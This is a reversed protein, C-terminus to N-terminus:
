LTRIHEILEDIVKEEDTKVKKKINLDISYWILKDINEKIKKNEKETKIIEKKISENRKINNTINQKMIEINNINTKYQEILKDTKSVFLVPITFALFTLWLIWIIIKTIKNMKTKPKTILLKISM